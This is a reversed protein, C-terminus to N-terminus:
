KTELRARVDDVDGIVYAGGEIGYCVYEELGNMYQLGAYGGRICVQKMDHKLALAWVILAASAIVLAVLFATGLKNWM